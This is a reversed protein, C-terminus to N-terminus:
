FGFKVLLKFIFELLRELFEAWDRTGDFLAQPAEKVLTEMVANAVDRQSMIAFGVPDDDRLDRAIRLMNPITAGIEKRYKRDDLRQQRRKKRKKISM